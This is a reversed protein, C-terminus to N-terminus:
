PTKNPEHGAILLRALRRLGDSSIELGFPAGIREVEYILDTAAIFTLYRLSKAEPLDKAITRLVPELKQWTSTFFARVPDEGSRNQQLGTKLAARAEKLIETLTTRLQPSQTDASAQSIAKTLTADWEQWLTQWKQQEEPTLPTEAQKLTKKVPADFELNIGIADTKASVDGFRVTTLINKIEDSNERPLYDKLTREIDERSANLDLKLDDLKPEVAKKILDQLKDIALQQNNPDYAKASTVPLTLVTRDANLTPQQLTELLGSWELLTICRGGLKAGLRAKVTNILKIQGQQGSIQPNSLNLFGCGHKDKWVAASNDPEKYLEKNLVRKILLYDLQVPLTYHAARGPGAFIFAVCGTVALLFHKM